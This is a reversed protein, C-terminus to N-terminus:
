FSVNVCCITYEGRIEFPPLGNRKRAENVEWNLYAATSSFIDPVALKVFVSNNTLSHAITSLGDNTLAGKFGGIHLMKLSNNVTLAGALSAAGKDTMGCVGIWLEKLQKNQKLAEAVHSIGEDGL